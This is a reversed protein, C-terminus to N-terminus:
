YSLLFTNNTNYGLMANIRDSSRLSCLIMILNFGCCRQYNPSGSCFISNSPYKQRERGRWVQDLWLNTTCKKINFHSKHYWMTNM